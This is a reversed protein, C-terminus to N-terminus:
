IGITIQHNKISVFDGLVNYCMSYLIQYVLGFAKLFDIRASVAGM